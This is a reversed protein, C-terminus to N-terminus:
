RYCFRSPALLSAAEKTSTSSSSPSFFVSATVKKEEIFFFAAADRQRCFLFSERVVPMHSRGPERRPEGDRREEEQAAPFVLFALAAPLLALAAARHDAEVLKVPSSKSEISRFFRENEM